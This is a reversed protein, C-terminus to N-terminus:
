AAHRSSRRRWVTVAGALAAGAGFLVPALSAPDGTAPIEPEEDKNPQTPTVYDPDKAGCVTCTGNEFRHGTPEIALDEAAVTKTADADSFLAGCRSCVWHEATGAETCTAAVADVHKLDHGLADVKRAEQADGRACTRMEAGTETCTPAKTVVWDNWAHGLPDGSAFTDSAPQGTDPGVQGCACSYYYCAPRSCTAELALTADSVVQQDFTHQHETIAFYHSSGIVETANPYAQLPSGSAESSDDRSEGSVVKYHVDESENPTLITIASGSPSSSSIALTPGACESADVTVNGQVFISGVSYIAPYSADGTTVATVKSSGLIDIGNGAYIAAHGTTGSGYQSEAHVTSNTISLHGPVYLGPYLMNTGISRFSTTSDAITVDNNISAGPNGSLSVDSHEEVVLTGVWIAQWSNVQTGEVYPATLTSGSLTATGNPTYLMEGVNGRLIANSLDIDGTSKLGHSSVSGSANLELTADTVTIDGTASFCTTPNGSKLTAVLSGNGSIALGSARTVLKSCTSQTISSSGVLVIKLPQSGTSQIIPEAGSTADDLAANTLTLTHTSAEYSVNQDGLVNAANADTVQVGEVKLPFDEALGASPALLAM